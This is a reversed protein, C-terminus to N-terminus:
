KPTGVKQPCTAAPSSREPRAPGRSETVDSLLCLIHLPSRNPVGGSPLQFSGRSPSQVCLTKRAQPSWLQPKRYPQSREGQVPFASSQSHTFDRAPEAQGFPHARGAQPWFGRRGEAAFRVRGATCLIIHLSIQRRLTLFNGMREGVKGLVTFHEARSKM